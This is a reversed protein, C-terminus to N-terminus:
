FFRTIRNGAHFAHPLSCQFGVAEAQAKLKVNRMVILLLQNRRQVAGILADAPKRCNIDALLQGDKM